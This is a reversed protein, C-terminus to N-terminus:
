IGEQAIFRAALAAGAFAIGWAQLGTHDLVAATSELIIAVVTLRVSWARKAIEKANPDVKM